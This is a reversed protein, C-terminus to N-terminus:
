ASPYTVLSPLRIYGPDLKRSLNGLPHDKEFGRIPDLVYHYFPPTERPGTKGSVDKWELSHRAPLQPSEKEKSDLYRVNHSGWIRSAFFWWVAHNPRHLSSSAKKAKLYNSRGVAGWIAEGRPRSAIHMPAYRPRSVRYPTVTYPRGGNGRFQGRERLAHRPSPSNYVFFAMLVCFISVCVYSIM